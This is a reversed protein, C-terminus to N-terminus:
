SGSNSSSRPLFSGNWQQEFPHSLYPSMEQSRSTLCWFAGRLRWTTQMLEFVLAILEEPVVPEPEPSPRNRESKPRSLRFREWRRESLLDRRLADHVFRNRKGYLAGAKALADLTLLQARQGLRECEPVKITCEEILAQFRHPTDMALRLDSQGRLRVLLFRAVAEMSLAEELIRGRLFTMQDVLPLAKVADLEM